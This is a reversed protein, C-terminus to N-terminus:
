RVCIATGGVGWQNSWGHLVWTNNVVQITVNEDGLYKGRISTLACFWEPFLLGTNVAPRGQSWSFTRFEREGGM